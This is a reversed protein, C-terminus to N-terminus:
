IPPDFEAGMTNVNSLIRNMDNFTFREDADGDWICFTLQAVM